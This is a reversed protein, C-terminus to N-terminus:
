VICRAPKRSTFFPRTGIKHAVLPHTHSYFLWVLPLFEPSAAKLLKAIEDPTFIEIKGGNVKVGETSVVPNGGKFVYGRAEAVEFLTHLVIRFNKVSQTGLELGDLWRQV